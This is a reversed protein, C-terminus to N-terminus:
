VPNRRKPYHEKIKKKSPSIITKFGLIRKRSNKGSHHKGVPFQRITFGLFDFGPKNGDHEILTHVLKTKSPKLELGIDSLWDELMQQCHVVVSLEDCIIVLDDAYRVLKPQSVDDRGFKSRSRKITGNSYAPYESEILQQM